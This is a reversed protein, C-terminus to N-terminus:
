LTKKTKMENLWATYEEKSKEGSKVLEEWRKREGKFYEFMERYAFIDPNRRVLMQKASYVNRALKAVEDNKLRDYWLKQSGYKKCTMQTNQPSTRNCYIEDTRSEPVFYMGCNQCKKIKVENECIKSLELLIMEDLATITYVPQIGGWFSTFQCLVHTDGWLEPSISVIITHRDGYAIKKLAGRAITLDLGVRCLATLLLHGITDAGYDDYDTNLFIIKKISQDISHDEQVPNAEASGHAIFIDHVFNFMDMFVIDSIVPSLIEILEGKLWDHISAFCEWKSYLSEYFHPCSLVINKLLVIDLESFAIILEGHGLEYEKGDLIAYYGDKFGVLKTGVENM